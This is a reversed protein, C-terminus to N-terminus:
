LNSKYHVEVERIEEIDFYLVLEKPTLTAIYAKVTERKDDTMMIYGGNINLMWVGSEKKGESISVFTMDKKFLIYDNREKKSPPYKKVGIKYTDLDWKKLLANKNLTQAGISYLSFTFLITTLITINIKSNM